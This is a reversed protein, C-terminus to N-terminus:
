VSGCSPSFVIRAGQEEEQSTVLRQFFSLSSLSLCYPNMITQTPRKRELVFRLNEREEREGEWEKSVPHPLIFSRSHHYLSLSLCWLFDVPCLFLFPSLSLSLFLVFSFFLTKRESKSDFVFFHSSSSGTEQIRRGTMEHGKKRERDRGRWSQGEDTRLSGKTLLCRSRFSCSIRFPNWFFSFFQLDLWSKSMQDRHCEDDDVIDIM